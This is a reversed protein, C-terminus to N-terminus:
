KLIAEGMGMFYIFGGFINATTNIQLEEGM